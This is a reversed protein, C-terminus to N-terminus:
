EKTILQSHGNLTFVYVGSVLQQTSIQSPNKGEIIIEGLLNKITFYSDEQHNKVFLVNNFPNPYVQFTKKKNLEILSTSYDNPLMLKTIIGDNNASLNPQFANSSVPYDTSNSSGTFIVNNSNIINIDNGSDDTIGGYYSSWNPYLSDTDFVALYVDYNGNLITQFSNPYIPLSASETKALIILQNQNLLELRSTFDNGTGGLLTARLLNGTADWKSVFCDLYGANTDQFCNTTTYFDSSKSQGAIYINQNNDCAVGWADDSSDGGYYTSFIRNGLSDLKIIYVDSAGNKFSQFAGTSTNLNTSFSEGVGIINGYNDSTLAHIDESGNGGFYTCWKLVGSSNFKAIFADMNGKHNPQFSSPTTYLNTSTTTGGIIINNNYDISLDYAMDGGNKGFYTSWILQGNPSIKVIYSDYGGLNNSQFVSTTIPINISSTFGCFIINSDITLSMKEASDFGTGGFYTCWILAGCSDFKAIFVDYDGSATDNVLGLTIPLNTSYTNGIVYSNRKSDVCVSKIEDFQNNGFYTSFQSCTIQSVLSLKSLLIILFYKLHM